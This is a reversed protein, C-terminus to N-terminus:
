TEFTLVRHRAAWISCVCLALLAGIGDILWDTIRGGRRPVFTQHYEDTAAYVMTAVFAIGLAAKPQKWQSRVMASFMLTSFAAFELVHWGKVFLWWWSRWFTGFQDETLRVPSASSVGHVFQRTSVVSCSTVFIVLAWVVVPVAHKRGSREM